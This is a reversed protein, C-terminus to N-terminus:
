IQYGVCCCVRPFSTMRNNIPLSLPINVIIQYWGSFYQVLFNKAPKRLTVRSEAGTLLLNGNQLVMRRLFRNIEGISNPRDFLPLFSTTRCLRPLRFIYLNCNKRYPQSQLNNRLVKQQNWFLPNIELVVRFISRKAIRCFLRSRANNKYMKICSTRDLPTLAEIKITYM